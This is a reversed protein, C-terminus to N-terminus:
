IIFLHVRSHISLGDRPLFGRTGYFLCIRLRPCDMFSISQLSALSKRGPSHIFSKSLYLSFCLSPPLLPFVLFLFLPLVPAICSRVDIPCPTFASTSASSTPPLGSCSSRNIVAHPSARPRPPSPFLQLFTTVSDVGVFQSLQDKIQSKNVQTEFSDM